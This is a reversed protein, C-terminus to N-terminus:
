KREDKQRQRMSSRRKLKERSKDMSEVKGFEEESEADSLTGRDEKRKYEVGDDYAKYLKALTRSMRDARKDGGFREKWKQVSERQSAEREEKTMTQVRRRRLTDWRRTSQKAEMDDPDIIYRKGKSLATQPRTFFLTPDREMLEQRRAHVEPFSPFMYNGRLPPRKEAALVRMVDNYRVMVGHGRPCHFYRKGNYVGNHPSGINDDLAVGVYSSPAVQEHKLIGVWRVVGPFRCKVIVRDGIRLVAPHDERARTASFMVSTDAAREVM